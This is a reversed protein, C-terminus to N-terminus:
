KKAQKINFVAAYGDYKSSWVTIKTNRAHGTNQSVSFTIDQQNYSYKGFDYSGIEESINVSLWDCQKPYDTPFASLKGPSVITLTASEAKNSFSIVYNQADVLNDGDLVYVHKYDFGGETMPKSCSWTILPILSIVLFILKSKM